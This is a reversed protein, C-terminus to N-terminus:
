ANKEKLKAEIARAYELTDFYCNTVYHEAMAEYEEDTLGQWERQPPATYLMTGVPLEANMEHLRENDKVVADHIQIYTNCKEQWQQNEEHLRRLEAAAQEDWWSDGEDDLVDALRLAEPQKDTM